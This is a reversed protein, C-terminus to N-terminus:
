AARSLYLDIDKWLPLEALWSSPPSTKLASLSLMTYSQPISRPPHFKHSCYLNAGLSFTTPTRSFFSFTTVPTPEEELKIDSGNWSKWGSSAWHFKAAHLVKIVWLVAAAFNWLGERSQCSLRPEDSKKRLLFIIHTYIYPKSQDVIQSNLCMPFYFEPRTGHHLGAM